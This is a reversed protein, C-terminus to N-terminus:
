SQRCGSRNRTFESSAKIIDAAKEAIGHVPIQASGCVVTPMGSADVVHLNSVGRVCPRPHVVAGLTRGLGWRAPHYCTDARSRIEPVREHRSAYTYHILHSPWSGTIVDETGSGDMVIETAWHCAKSLVLIDLPDSPYNPDDVPSQRADVSCITAEGPSRPFFLTAAM